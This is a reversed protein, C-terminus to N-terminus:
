AFTFTFIITVLGMELAGMIDLAFFANQSFNPLAILSFNQPIKVVGTIVSLITTAFISILMSGNVNRAMLLAMLIFGFVTLLVSPSFHGLEIITEFSLPTGQGHSQILNQLTPPILSLRITMIGSLKLGVVTIFLGIGVTIAHKLSMPMGEVLLQRVRTVTLLIFVIGSLFVAGLAVQWSVGMGIVVTFAYFANLGMGPALAIPYNVFLGMAITVCGAGIATALLVANKDMGAAGLISPNVFLIYAMTMFTTIGAMVETKVDTLNEKLHFIKDLNM